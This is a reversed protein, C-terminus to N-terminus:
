FGLEFYQFRQSILKQLHNLENNNSRRVCVIYIYAYVSRTPIVTRLLAM